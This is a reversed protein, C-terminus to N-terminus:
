LRLEIFVILLLQMLYSVECELDSALHTDTPKSPTTSRRIPLKIWASHNLPTMFLNSLITLIMAIRNLDELRIQETLPYLQPEITCM